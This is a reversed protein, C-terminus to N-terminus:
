LIVNLDVNGNIGAVKGVNSYQHMFFKDWGQVKDPFKGGYRAVWLRIKGLSHKKPLHEKLFPSYSYLIYDNHNAKQLTDFFTKIWTEIEEDSLNIKVTEIDLAFPMQYPPLDTLRKIVYEAEATADKIEDQQDITCFHYFGFPLNLRYCEAANYGCRPDRGSIGETMKIYVFDVKKNAENPSIIGNYKVQSFDISGNHHSIDIGYKFKSYDTKILNGGIEGVIRGLEAIDAM